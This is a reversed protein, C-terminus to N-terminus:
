RELRGSITVLEPKAIAPYTSAGFRTVMVTVTTGADAYLRVDHTAGFVNPSRPLEQLAMTHTATVGRVVTSVFVFPQENNAVGIDATVTEIVLLLGAPVSVTGTIENVGASFTLEIAQQYPGAATGGAGGGGHGSLETSELTSSMQM